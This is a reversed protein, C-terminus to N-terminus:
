YLTALPNRDLIPLDEIQKKEVTGTVEANATNVSESGAEVVVRDSVPGVEMVIPPVSFQTAADLKINSVVYVKFGTKSVTIKYLGYNLSSFQFTGVSSTNATYSANTDESTLTVTAGVIALDQVDMVTGVISGTPTQASVISASVIILALELFLWLGLARRIQPARSNQHIIM